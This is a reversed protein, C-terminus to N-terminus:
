VSPFKDPLGCLSDQCHAQQRRSEVSGECPRIVAAHNIHRPKGGATYGQIMQRRFFCEMDNSGGPIFLHIYVLFYMEEDETDMLINKSIDDIAKPYDLQAVYIKSRVLYAERNNQDLQIARNVHNLAFPLKNLQLRLEALAIYADINRADKGVAKLYDEEAPNFRGLKENVIGRLFFNESTEKLTLATNCNELAEEFRELAILIKAKLRYANDNTKKLKISIDTKELAKEYENLLYYLRGSHYFVDKDKELFTSARDYDAAAEELKGIKECADARAMYADAYDPELDIAKTFQEIADNYNGVEVFDEGTKFYRRANQCLVSAPIFVIIIFLLIKSTKM